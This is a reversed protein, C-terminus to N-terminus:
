WGPRRSRPALLASALRDADLDPDPRTPAASRTPEPNLTPGCRRRCRRRCRRWTAGFEDPKVARAGAHRGVSPRPLLAHRRDAAIRRASDREIRQVTSFGPPADVYNYRGWGGCPRWIGSNFVASCSASRSKSRSRCCEALAPQELLSYRGAMLMCDFDGDRLYRAAYVPDNLGIGIGKIVGDGRLKELARYAGAMADRYYREGADPGHSWADADHILLLDVKPLGFRMLSHELSRMTADYSYDHVVNFSLGGAYRTSKSRGGPAPVLLRGVKTSLTFSGPPLRRLITGFRHEAIGQGYLPAADFHTIRCPGRDGRHRTRNDDLKPSCTAARRRRVGDGHRRARHTRAQAKGIDDAGNWGLATDINKSASM